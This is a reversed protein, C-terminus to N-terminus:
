TPKRRDSPRHPLPMGPALSVTKCVTPPCAFRYYTNNLYASVDDVEEDGWHLALNDNWRVVWRRVDNFDSAVRKKRGHVSVSHCTSCRSEYLARGRQADAGSASRMALGLALVALFVAAFTLTHKRLM